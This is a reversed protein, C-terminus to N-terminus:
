SNDEVSDNSTVGSFYALPAVRNATQRVVRSMARTLPNRTEIDGETVTSVSAGEGLRSAAYQVGDGALKGIEGDGAWQISCSGEIRRHGAQIRSVWEVRSGAQAVWVSGGNSRLSALAEEVVEDKASSVNIVAIVAQGREAFFSSLDSLNTFFERSLGGAQTGGKVRGTVNKLSDICIVPNRTGLMRRVLKPVERIYGPLPEGYPIMEAGAMRSVYELIPTKATDAPGFIATFGTFIPIGDVRAVEALRGHTFHTARNGHNWISEGHITSVTGDDELRYSTTGLAMIGQHAELDTSMVDVHDTQESSSVNTPDAEVVIVPESSTLRAPKTKRRPKASRVLNTASDALDELTESNLTKKVSALAETFSTKKQRAM